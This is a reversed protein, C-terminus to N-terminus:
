LTKKPRKHGEPSGATSLNNKGKEEARPNCFGDPHPIINKHAGRM